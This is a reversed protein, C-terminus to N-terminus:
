RDEDGSNNEDPKEDRDDWQGRWAAREQDDLRGDGNADAQERRQRWEQRRASIYQEAAAREADNLSGDGDTDFKEMLERRRADHRRGHRFRREMAHCQEPSLTKVFENFRNCGAMRRQQHLDAERSVITRLNELDPEPQSLESLLDQRLLTIHQEFAGQEERFSSRLKAFMEAQAETLELENAVLTPMNDGNTQSALEDKAQTYGYVFFVNFLVSLVLMFWLLHRMM